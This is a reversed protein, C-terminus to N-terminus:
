MELGIEDRMTISETQSKKSVLVNINFDTSQFLCYKDGSDFYLLTELFLMIIQFMQELRASHLLFCM